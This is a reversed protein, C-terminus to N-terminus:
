YALAKKPCKEICRSCKLCDSHTFGETSAKATYPSLQLPCVNTCLKCNVCSSEVKLPKPKSKASLWSALTGMPCFSCWTRQHYAIGLVIGVITTLLIIRVFVAGMASLNGWAYYMQVGFVGMIFMVMFGRFGNSRFFKPIPKKPSIKAIVNDYFSGRPCFNGCWYRGKFPAVIIPALMCTLALLGIVPYVMGVALFVLLVWFLNAQINKM